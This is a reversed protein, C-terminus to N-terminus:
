GSGSQTGSATRGTEQPPPALGQDELYRRTHEYGRLVLDATYRFTRADSTDGLEPRLLHVKRGRTAPLSTARQAAARAAIRGCRDVLSGQFDVGLPFDSCDLAYITTAGRELLAPVPLCELVGGDVFLEDGIRYPPFVGPIASSAMLAPLIEGSDFVVREGDSLRVAVVACPLTMDEFRLDGCHRRLFAEWAASSYMYRRRALNFIVRLSSGPFVDKTRLELWIAELLDLRRPYLALWAANVAGVSTGAVLHPWIGAETLAKLAGVQAAGRTGGGSLSFGVVEDSRRFRGFM